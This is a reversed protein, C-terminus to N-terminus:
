ANRNSFRRQAATSDVLASCKNQSLLAKGSASDASPKALTYKEPPIFHNVKRSESKQVGGSTRQDNAIPKEQARVLLHSGVAILM